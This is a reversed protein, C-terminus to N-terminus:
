KGGVLYLLPFLFIWVLDVFHWYLGVNHLPTYYHPGFRGKVGLMILWTLLGAGVVMHAAHLGTMAFYLSFFIQIGQPPVYPTAPAAPAAHGAAAAGHVSAGTPHALAAQKGHHPDFKFHPGPVLHHEWKDGYEVVKVGLFVFCLLLTLVLNTLMSKRRGSAAANISLAMTLSSSILVVTNFAGLPVNLEASGAAYATPYLSRYIAYSMFLGGFFMVEQVLFLWMGFLASSKQQEPTDFQHLHEYRFPHDHGHGHPAAAVAAAGRGAHIDAM